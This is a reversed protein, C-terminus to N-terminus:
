IGKSCIISTLSISVVSFLVASGYCLFVLADIRVYYKMKLESTLCSIDSKSVKLTIIAFICLAILAVSMIIPLLLSYEVVTGNSENTFYYSILAGTIGYYFMNIKIILDMYHKYLDVNMNYRNWLLQREDM